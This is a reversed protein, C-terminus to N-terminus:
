LRYLLAKQMTNFKMETENWERSGVSQGTIGAGAFLCIKDEEIRGCRINVHFYFDDLSKFPGCFGGYCGRKFKETEELFNLAIEKPNGCLAPTPSLDHLLRTLNEVTLENRPKGKVITCLHEVDGACIDETNGSYVEINHGSFVENIYDTVIRQEEINKEDWTNEASVEEKEDLSNPKTGALSMSFLEGKSRKLLLEPSAGIWCGTQPTSFCFIFANRNEDCLRNFTRGLNVSKDEIKIRTAVIKDWNKAKVGDVIEAVEKEYEYRSTSESAANYSLNYKFPYLLSKSNFPINLLPIEPNFMGIIFGPQNLGEAVEEATGFTVEQERPYRFAYFILNRDYAKNIYESITEFTIFGPLFTIEGGSPIEDDMDYKLGM